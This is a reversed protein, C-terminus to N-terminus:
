LSYKTYHDFDSTFSRIGEGPMKYVTNNVIDIHHSSNVSIGSTNFYTPRIIGNLVPLDLNGIQTGNLEKPVREQINGNM